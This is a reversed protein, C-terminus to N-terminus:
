MLCNSILVILVIIQVIYQVNRKNWFSLEIGSGSIGVDLDYMYNKKNLIIFYIYYM